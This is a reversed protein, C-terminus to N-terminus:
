FSLGRTTCLFNRYYPILCDEDSNDTGRNLNFIWAHVRVYCSKRLLTTCVVANLFIQTIKLASTAKDKFYKCNNNRYIIFKTASNEWRELFISNLSIVLSKCFISSNDYTFYLNSKRNPSFKQCATSYSSPPEKKHKQPQEQRSTFTFLRSLASFLRPIYDSM